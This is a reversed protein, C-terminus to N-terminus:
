VRQIKQRILEKSSFPNTINAQILVDSEIREKAQSLLYEAEWDNESLLRTALMRKNSLREEKIHSDLVVSCITAVLLATTFLYLFTSYNAQSLQEAFHFGVVVLLYIAMVLGVTVYQSPWGVSVIVLVLCIAGLVMLVWKRKGTKSLEISLYHASIFPIIGLVFIGWYAM